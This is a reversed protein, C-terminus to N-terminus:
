HNNAFKSINKSIFNILSLKRLLNTSLSRKIMYDDKEDYLENLNSKVSIVDVFESVKDLSLFISSKDLCKKLRFSIDLSQLRRTNMDIFEIVGETKMLEKYIFKEEGKLNFLEDPIAFLFKLLRGDSTPDVFIMGYKAFKIHIRVATNEFHFLVLERRTKTSNYFFTFGSVFGIKIKLLESHKSFFFNSLDSFHKKDLLVSWKFNRFVLLFQRYYIALLKEKIAKAISISNLRSYYFLFKLAKFVKGKFILDGYLYPSNWSVTFNGLQGSYISSIGSKACMQIIGDVWFTNSNLIPNLYDNTKSSELLENYNADPFNLYNAKINPFQNVFEKVLHSEDVLHHKSSPIKDMYLPYSTYTHLFDGRLQLEKATFYAVSSSDLGSSLLLGIENSTKIRSRIAM